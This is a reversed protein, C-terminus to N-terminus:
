KCISPYLLSFQEIATYDLANYITPQFKVWFNRIDQLLM